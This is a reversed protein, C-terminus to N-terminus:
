ILHIKLDTFKKFDSDSTLIECGHEMAIAALYADSVHSGIIHNDSLIKKFIVWHDPGPEVIRCNPLNMLADVFAACEELSSAQSFIRHNTAIRLFGSCVFSCLAFPSLSKGLSLLSKHATKHHSLEPRHAGILINIDPLIM